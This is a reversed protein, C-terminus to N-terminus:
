NTLSNSFKGVEVNASFSEFPFRDELKLIAFYVFRIKSIKYKETARVM